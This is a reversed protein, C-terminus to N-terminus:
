QASPCSAPCGPPEREATAAGDTRQQPRSGHGTSPATGPSEAFRHLWRAFQLNMLAEWWWRRGPNHGLQGVLRQNWVEAQRYVGM